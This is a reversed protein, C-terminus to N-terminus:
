RIGAIDIWCYGDAILVENGANTRMLGHWYRGAPILITSPSTFTDAPLIPIKAINFMTPTLSDAIVTIPPSNKGLIITSSDKSNRIQWKLAFASIDLPLGTAEDLVPILLNVAMGVFIIGKEVNVTRVM